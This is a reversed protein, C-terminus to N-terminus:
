SKTLTYADIGKIGTRKRIGKETKVIGFIGIESTRKDEEESAV